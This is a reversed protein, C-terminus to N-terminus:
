NSCANCLICASLDHFLIIYKKWQSSTSSVQLTNYNALDSYWLTSYNVLDSYCLTIYNVSCHLTSDLDTDGAFTLGLEEGKPRQPTRSNGKARRTKSHSLDRDYPDRSQRIFIFFFFENECHFVITINLFCKM